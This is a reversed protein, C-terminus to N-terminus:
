LSLKARVFAMADGARRVADQAEADPIERWNDPYRDSVAYDTLEAAVDSLTQFDADEVSCLAVLRPLYHTREVHVGARVLYAKLCKEVCQQAHFCATDAVPPVVSLMTQATTLDHEAKILWRSVAIRLPDDM